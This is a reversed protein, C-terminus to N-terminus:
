HRSDRLIEGLQKLLLTSASWGFTIHESLGNTVNLEIGLEERLSINFFAEFHASRHTLKVYLLCSYVIYKSLKFTHQKWHFRFGFRLSM